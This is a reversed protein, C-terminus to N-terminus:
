FPQSDEDKDKKKKESSSSLGFARGVGEAVLSKVNEQHANEQQKKYEECMVAMLTSNVDQMTDASSAAAFPSMVNWSQAGSDPYPQWGKSKGKNQNPGKWGKGKGQAKGFMHAKLTQQQCRWDYLNLGGHGM